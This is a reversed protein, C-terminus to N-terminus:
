SSSRVSCASRLDGAGNVPTARASDASPWSPMRVSIGRFNTVLRDDIIGVEIGVVRDDAPRRAIL